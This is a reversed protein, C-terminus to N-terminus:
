IMLEHKSGLHYIGIKNVTEFVVLLGGSNSDQLISFFYAIGWSVLMKTTSCSERNIDLTSPLSLQVPAAAISM